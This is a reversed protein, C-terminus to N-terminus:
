LALDSITWTWHLLRIIAPRVPADQVSELEKLIGTDSNDNLLELALQLRKEDTLEEFLRMNRDSAGVWEDLEDHEAPTLSDRIYGALLSAIRRAKQEKSNNM